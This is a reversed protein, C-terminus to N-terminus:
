LLTPLGRRIFRGRGEGGVYEGDRAVIEGRSLTTVLRGSLEIGEYPTYDVNEHLIARSLTARKEPDYIIIDADSGPAVAGKRPYMGFIKAPNTATIEVIKNLSLGHRPGESLLIQMRAEIGPAGNPIKSFDNLGLKKQEFFFPCHDTAVTQLVGRRLQKWLYGNNHADRLPPSMVYKAGGFGPEDYRDMSLTLYQPCTEGMIPLGKGRAEEIRTVSEECTNHVIYLRAGTMEALKIARNAAEGECEAPRSLPHYKPSTNGQALFKETLHKIVHYNECHVAVLAGCESSKELVSMFEGDNVRMGDYVMYVKFSTVGESMMDTMEALTAGDARTVAIHLGYDLCSKEGKRKWIRLADALSGGKPQAAYDIFSTTGGIAAAKSGTAFDDSSTIEDTLPMDLHTHVDVGGPMVFKEAADIAEGGTLNQGVEVILGDKIGVDAKYTDEATVVTGNIIVKDFEGM